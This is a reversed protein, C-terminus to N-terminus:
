VGGYHTNGDSSSGPASACRVPQNDFRHSEWPKCGSPLWWRLQLPLWDRDSSIFPHWEDFKISDYDPNRKKTEKRFIYEAFDKRAKLMTEFEKTMEDVKHAGLFATLSEDNANAKKLTDLYQDQVYVKDESLSDHKSKLADSAHMLCAQYARNEEHLLRLM